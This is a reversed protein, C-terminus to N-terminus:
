KFYISYTVGIDTMDFDNGEIDGQGITLYFDVSFYDRLMYNYGGTVFIADGDGGGFDLIQFGGGAYFSNEGMPFYYKGGVGLVNIDSGGLDVNAFDLTLEVVDTLFYGGGIALIDIDDSGGADYDLSSSSFGTGTGLLGTSAGLRITGKEFAMVPTAMAMVLVLVGVIFVKNM